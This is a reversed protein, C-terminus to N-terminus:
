IAMSASLSRSARAQKLAEDSGLHKVVIFSPLQRQFLIQEGKFCTITAFLQTELSSSEQCRLSQLSHM